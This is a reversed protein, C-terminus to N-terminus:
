ISEYKGMYEYERINGERIGGYERGRGDSVGKSLSYRGRRKRKRGKEEVSQTIRM